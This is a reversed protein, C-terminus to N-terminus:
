YNAALNTIKELQKTAAGIRKALETMDQIATEIAATRQQQEAPPLLRLQEVAATIRETQSSLQEAVETRLALEALTPVATEITEIQEAQAKPSPQQTLQQVIAKIKEMQESIQGATEKVSIVLAALPAGAPSSAQGAGAQRTGLEAREAYRRGKKLRLVASLCIFLRKRGKVAL